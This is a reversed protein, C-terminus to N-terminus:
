ASMYTSRLAVGAPQLPKKSPSLPIFASPPLIFSSPPLIFSSPHLRFASPPLIFQSHSSQGRKALVPLFSCLAWSLFRGMRAILRHETIIAARLAAAASISSAADATAAGAPARDLPESAAASADDSSFEDCSSDVSSVPAGSAASLDRRPKASGGIGFTGLSVIGLAVRSQALGREPRVHRASTRAADRSWHARLLQVISDCGVANGHGAQRVQQHQEHDANLLGAKREVFAPQRAVLTGARGPHSVQQDDRQAGAREPRVSKGDAPAVPKVTRHRGAPIVSETRAQGLQVAAQAQAGIRCVRARELVAQEAGLAKKQMSDVIDAHHRQEHHQQRKQHRRDRNGASCHRLTPRQLAGSNIARPGHHRITQEGVPDPASAPQGLRAQIPVQPMADDVKGAGSHYVRHASHDSQGTAQHDSRPAPRIRGVLRWPRRQPFRGGQNQPRDDEGNKPATPVQPRRWDRVGNDGSMGSRDGRERCRGDYPDPQHRRREAASKKRPENGAAGDHANTSRSPAAAIPATAPGIVTSLRRYQSRRPISSRVPAIQTLPM